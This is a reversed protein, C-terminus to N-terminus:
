QPRAPQAESKEPADWPSSKASLPLLHVIVRGFADLVMPVFKADRFGECVYIYEARLGHSGLPYVHAYVKANLAAIREASAGPFDDFVVRFSLACISAPSNRCPNIKIVADRQNLVNLNTLIEGWADYPPPARQATFGREQLAAIIGDVTLDSRADTQQTPVASPPSQSLASPQPNLIFATVLCPLPLFQRRNM